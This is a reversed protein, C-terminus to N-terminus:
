PCGGSDILTAERANPYRQRLQFSYSAEAPKDELKREITKELMRMVLPTAESKACRTAWAQGSVECTKDAAGCGERIM